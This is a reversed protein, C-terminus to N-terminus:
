VEFIRDTFRKIMRYNLPSDLNTRELFFGLNKLIYTAPFTFIQNNDRRWHPFEEVPGGPIVGRYQNSDESNTYGLRNESIGIFSELVNRSTFRDSLLGPPLSSGRLSGSCAFCGESCVMLSQDLADVSDIPIGSDRLDPLLSASIKSLISARRLDKINLINWVSKNREILNNASKMVTNLSPPIVEDPNAIIRAALRHNVHEDCSKLWREFERLFDSSPLPPARMQGNAARSAVSIHFFKAVTAITGNGEPEDDYIIVAHDELKFTAAVREEEVGTYRSVIDVLGRGITNLTTMELWEEASEILENEDWQNDAELYKICIEDVSSGVFDRTNEPISQIYRAKAINLQEADIERWKQLVESITEPFSQSNELHLFLVLVKLLHSASFIDECITGKREMHHSFLKLSDSDFTWETFGIARLQLENLLNPHLTFRLAETNFRVGFVVDKDTGRVNTRYRLSVGRSRSVSTIVDRIETNSDYQIESFTEFLAPHTIVPHRDAVGPEVNRSPSYGLVPVSERSIRSLAWRMPWSEPIQGQSATTAGGEVDMGHVLGTPTGNIIHYKVMSPRNGVGDESETVVFIPIVIPIPSGIALDARLMWPIDACQIHDGTIRVMTNHGLDTGETPTGGQQNGSNLDIVYRGSPLTDVGEGGVPVKLSFGSNSPPLRHNWMGPLLDRMVQRTTQKRSKSNKVYVRIKEEHPNEFASSIMCDPADRLFIDADSLLFSLYHRAIKERNLTKSISDAEFAGQSVAEETGSNIEDYADKLSLLNTRLESLKRREMFKCVPNQRLEELSNKIEDISDFNKLEIIERIRNNTTEDILHQLEILTENIAQELERIFGQIGTDPKPFHTAGPSIKHLIAQIITWEQGNSDTFSEEVIISLHRRVVQITRSIQDRNFSIGARQFGRAIWNVCDQVRKGSLLALASHMNDSWSPHRMEEVNLENKAIWDFVSMYVQTRLVSENQVAVPVTDRIPEIILQNHNTYFQYDTSRNSLITVAHVVSGRERGARGTKQRYSSVNRMARHTMVVGVNDMDVGVELTPTAVIVNHAIKQQGVAAWAAFPPYTEGTLHLYNQNADFQETDSRLGDGRDSKNTEASHRRSRLTHKFVRGDNDGMNPRSVTRELLTPEVEGRGARATIPAPHAKAFHWCTGSRLFPCKDLGNVYITGEEDPLIEMSFEEAESNGGIKTRLRRIEAADVPIDAPLRSPPNTEDGKCANCVEPGCIQALPRDFWHAYPLRMAPSNNAIQDPSINDDFMSGENENLLMQWRGVFDKSDAFCIMKEITKPDIDRQEQRNMPDGLQGLDLHQHGVLSTANYIPGGKSVGPRPRILIHNVIGGPVGDIEEPRPEINYVSQPDCGYISGVHCEAEAITASSGIFSLTRRGEILSHLRNFLGRIHGGQLGEALHIEDLVIRRLSNAAANSVEPILLRKRFSEISSVMITAARYPETRNRPNRGGYRAIAGRLVNSNSGGLGQWDNSRDWSHMTGPIRPQGNSIMGSADIGITIYNTPIDSDAIKSNIKEVYKLLQSYQDFALDKRPYMLLQSWPPMGHAQISSLVSDVLVPVTFAITKGSGTGASINLPRNEGTWSSILSESIARDQFKTLNFESANGATVEGIAELVLETVQLATEISQDFPNEINGFEIEERFRNMFDDISVEREPREMLAPIWKIAEILQLHVKREEDSSDEGELKRQVYEHMTGLTRVTEATRTFYRWPRGDDYGPIALIHDGIEEILREVSAPEIGQSSSVEEISWPAFPPRGGHPGSVIESEHLYVHYLTELLEPDDNIILM